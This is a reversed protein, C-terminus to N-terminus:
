MGSLFPYHEAAAMFFLMPFSLWFGARSALFAARALRAAEPPVPTGREASAQFWAILRKQARWVVGWANLLMLFGFGGGVSIALHSNSSWPGSNMALTAWSAAIVIVGIALSRLWPNDLAGAHPSQFPYILAFAIIWVALWGGMWRWLLAPDGANRADAALILWFYRGGSLATLLASWRFWAMARSMLAPYIKMRVPADLQKMAPANVLNLFYLLGIWITGAVIHVWRLLIEENTAAGQPFSFHPELAGIGLVLSALVM